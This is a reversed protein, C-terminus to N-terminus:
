YFNNVTANTYNEVNRSHSSHIPMSLPKNHRLRSLLSTKFFSYSNLLNLFLYYYDYYKFYTKLFNLSYRLEPSTQPVKNKGSGEYINWM